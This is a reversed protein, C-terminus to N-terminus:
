NLYEKIGPEANTEPIKSFFNEHKKVKFASGGAGWAV